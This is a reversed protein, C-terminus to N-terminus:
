YDMAKEVLQLMDIVNGYKKLHAYCEPSATVITANKDKAEKVMSEALMKAENPFAREFEIRGGCCKPSSFEILRGIKKIISRGDVGLYSLEPPEHYLYRGGVYNLNLKKLEDFIHSIKFGSFFKMCDYEYFIIEKVGADRFDHLVKEAIDNKRGIRDMAAGCGGYYPNANLLSSIKKVAGIKKAQAGAFIIKEGRPKENISHLEKILKEHAPLLNKLDYRAAKIIDTIKILSPCTTECIRCLPTKQLTKVVSDDEKIEGTLLGYAVMIKGKPGDVEKKTLNYLPCLKKCFGCGTCSLIEDHYKELM